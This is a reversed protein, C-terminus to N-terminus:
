LGRALMAGISRSLKWVVLAVGIYVITTTNLMPALIRGADGGLLTVTFTTIVLGVAQVFLVVLAAFRVFLTALNQYTM